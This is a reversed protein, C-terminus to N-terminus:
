LEGLRDFLVLLCLVFGVHDFEVFALDYGQNLITFLFIATSDTAGGKGFTETNCWVNQTNMYLFLVFNTWVTLSAKGSGSVQSTMNARM